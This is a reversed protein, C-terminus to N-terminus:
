RSIAQSAQAAQQQEHQVQQNVAAAAAAQMHQGAPMVAFAQTEQRVAANDGKQAAELLRDIRNLADQGAQSLKGYSQEVDQVVQKEAQEMTHVGQELKQSVGTYVESAKQSIAHEAQEAAHVTAGYASHAVHEVDRAGEALKDGVYHGASKTGDLVANPIEWNSSIVTRAALVDGRYDDIMTKNAQYLAANEPSIISHGLRPNDPTFNTISHADLDVGQIPNALHFGPNNSYGAKELKEIDQQSAYIRVEGFHRSAASVVDTARVNDIIQHGGAPVGQALGVAGYANFTEGRLGYKYATIEALTGGLSHGTVTAHFPLDQQQDYRKGLELAKKTFAEADATQANVGAFVMGADTGIDQVAMRAADTGCHAIVVEGTDRRVYATGQYGTLHNHEEALVKYQVGGVTIVRNVVHNNYADASLLAYDDASITM